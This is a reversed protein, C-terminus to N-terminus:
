IFREHEISAWPIETGWIRVNHKNVKGSIDFMSDHTSFHYCILSKLSWYVFLSKEILISSKWGFWSYQFFSSTKELGNTSVAAIDSVYNKYISTRLQKNKQTCGIYNFWLILPFYSVNKHILKFCVWFLSLLIKKSNPYM